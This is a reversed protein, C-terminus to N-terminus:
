LGMSAAIINKLVETTGSYVTGAVADRLQREIEYEVMYGYGGFIQLTDRCNHVYAESAYLKALASELIAATHREKKRIANNILFRTAEIRVKMDVISNAVAQHKGISTGGIKRRRAYEVCSELLREMSGICSCFIFTREWEMSATFILGGAGEKGL